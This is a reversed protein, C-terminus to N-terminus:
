RATDTSTAPVPEPAQVRTPKVDPVRVPQACNHYPWASASLRWEGEERVLAYQEDHSFEDIGFPGSNRTQTVEFVVFAKDDAYNTKDYTVRSDELSQRGFSRSFMEELTCRERFETSLMARAAEIDDDSVAELYIQVTREPSGEPLVVADKILAIAIAAILLVGLAAGSGIIWYKPM